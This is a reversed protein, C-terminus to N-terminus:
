GSTQFENLAYVEHTLKAVVMIFLNVSKGCVAMQDCGLVRGDASADFWLVWLGM